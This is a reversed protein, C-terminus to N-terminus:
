RRQGTRRRPADARDVRPSVVRLADLAVLAWAAVAVWTWCRAFDRMWSVQALAGVAFSMAAYMGLPFVTSWRSGPDGRRPRRLEGAVLLPLWVIASAWLVISAGAVYCSRAPSRRSRWRGGAIWQDGRGARLERRDFRRLARVYALLAGGFLAFDALRLWGADLTAGLVVLSQTAVTPLFVVGTARQPLTPRLLQGVWLGAAALLLPSAVATWGLRAVGDGVVATAAVGAFDRGLAGRAVTALWGAGALALLAHSPLRSSASGLDLSVVGTAM